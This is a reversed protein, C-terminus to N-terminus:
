KAAPLSNDATFNLMIGFSVTIEDKVKVLGSLKEPPTLRFDTLRVTKSGSLLYHSGCNQIICDVNYDRTVGAITIMVEHMSNDFPIKVGNQKLDTFRITITPYENEHLNELFDKYMLPNSPEFERVPINIENGHPLSPYLLATGFDPSLKTYSFSFHNVNSAGSIIIFNSCNDGKEKNRGESFLPSHTSGTMLLVWALIINRFSFM